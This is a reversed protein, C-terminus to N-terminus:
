AIQSAKWTSVQTAPRVSSFHEIHNPLRDRTAPSRKARSRDRKRNSHKNPNPKILDYQGSMKSLASEAKRCADEAKISRLLQNDHGATISQRLHPFMNVQNFIGSTLRDKMEQGRNTFATNLSRQERRYLASDGFVRAELHM